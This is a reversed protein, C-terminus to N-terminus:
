VLCCQMSSTAIAEIGNTSTLQNMPLTHNTNTITKIAFHGLGTGHGSTLGVVLFPNIADINYCMRTGDNGKWILHFVGIQTPLPHPKAVLFTKVDGVITTNTGFM